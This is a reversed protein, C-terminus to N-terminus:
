IGHISFTVRNNFIKNYLVKALSKYEGNGKSLQDLLKLAENERWTRNHSQRETMRSLNNYYDFHANKQIVEKKIVYIRKNLQTFRQMKISM